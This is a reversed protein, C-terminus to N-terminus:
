MSPSKAPPGSAKETAQTREFRLLASLCSLLIHVIAGATSYGVTRPDAVGHLQINRLNPGDDADFMFRGMDALREGLVRDVVPESLLGSLISNHSSEDRYYQPVKGGAYWVDRLISEFAICGLAAASAYDGDRYNKLASKLRPVWSPAERHGSQEVLWVVFLGLVDDLAELTAMGQYQYTQYAISRELRVAQLMPTKPRKQTKESESYVVPQLGLQDMLTLKRKADPPPVAAWPPITFSHIIATLLGEPGSAPEAEKLVAALYAALEKMPKDLDLPQEIVAMEPLIALKSRLGQLRRAEGHNQLINTCIRVAEELFHDKMTGKGAEAAAQELGRVHEEHVARRQAETDALELAVKSYHEMPTQQGRSRRLADLFHEHLRRLRDPGLDKKVNGLSQASWRGAAADSRLLDVTLLLDAAGEAMAQRRGGTDFIAAAVLAQSALLRCGGKDLKDVAARYADAVNQRQEKTRKAQTMYAAEAMVAAQLGFTDGVQPDVYDALRDVDYRRDFATTSPRGAHALQYAVHREADTGPKVASFYGSFHGMRRVVCMLSLLIYASKRLVTGFIQLVGHLAM